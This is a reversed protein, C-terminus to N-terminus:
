ECSILILSKEEETIGDVLYEKCNDSYFFSGNEYNHWNIKNDSTLLEMLINIDKSYILWGNNLVAKM